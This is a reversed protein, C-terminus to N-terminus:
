KYASFRLLVLEYVIDHNLAHDEVRSWKASSTPHFATGFLGVNIQKETIIVSIQRFKTVSIM